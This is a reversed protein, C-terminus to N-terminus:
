KIITKVGNVIYLGAPLAAIDGRSTTTMRLVGNLDYVCIVSDDGDAAVVDAGTTTGNLIFQKWGEQNSYSAKAAEEIMGLKANKYVDDSFLKQAAVPAELPYAVITTLKSKSGAFADAGYTRVVGSEGATAKITINTLDYYSGEFASEGVSVVSAPLEIRTMTSTSTNFANQGITTLSAPFTVNGLSTNQFASAGIEALTAPFTVTTLVRCSSFISEPLSTIDTADAASVATLESCDAFAYSANQLPNSAAEGTSTFVVSEINGNGYFSYPSLVVNDLVINKARLGALIGPRNETGGPLPALTYSVGDHSVPSALTLSEHEMDADFGTITAETQGPLVEYTIGNITFVTSEAADQAVACVSVAAAMLSLLTKKM